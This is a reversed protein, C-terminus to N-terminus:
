PDCLDRERLHLRPVIECQREASPLLLHQRVVHHLPALAPWRQPVLDEGLQHILRPTQRLLLAQPAPQQQGAAETGRYMAGRAPVHRVVTWPLVARQALVFQQCRQLERSGSGSDVGGRLQLPGGVLPLAGHQQVDVGQEMHYNDDGRTRQHTRTTHRLRHLAPGHRKQGIFAPRIQSAGVKDHIKQSSGFSFHQGRQPSRGRGVGVVAPAAETWERM